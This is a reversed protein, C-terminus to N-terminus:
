TKAKIAPDDKDMPPLKRALVFAGVLSFIWVSFIYIMLWATSTAGHQVEQAATQGSPLLLPFMWLLVAVVPLLRLADLVRRRRYTQKELFLPTRSENM